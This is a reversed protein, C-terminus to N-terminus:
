GRRASWEAGALVVMSSLFSLLLIAVSNQFPGYERSLKAMLLPGLLLFLYRLIELALGVFIAVPVLPLAPVRRNPLSWYCLVLVSITIPLAALKFLIWTLWVPLSHFGFLNRALEQNKATLLLSSLVLAGCFLILGLSLIQNKVYSRNEPVHWVRNLAVELPEFVGNATFMLLLLSIIQAPGNRYVSASLNRVLFDGVEAPFYDRLALNIADVAAPWRFTYRCISTVVILFPFFSLLVSAAISLAYVHVETQGLFRFTSRWPALRSMATWKRLAAERGEEETPPSPAVPDPTL